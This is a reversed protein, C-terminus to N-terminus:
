FKEFWARPAQKLEYLSHKLRYISMVRPHYLIVLLLRPPCMHIEEKLNSYHFVNKMDMQFLPWSSSATLTLIISVM